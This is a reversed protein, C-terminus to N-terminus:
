CLTHGIVRGLIQVSVFSDRFETKYTDTITSLIETRMTEISKLSNSELQLSYFSKISKYTRKVAKSSEVYEGFAEEFISVNNTTISKQICYNLAPCHAFHQTSIKCTSDVGNLLCEYSLYDFVYVMDGEVTVSYHQPKWSTIIPSPMSISSPDKLISGDFDFKISTLGSMPSLYM